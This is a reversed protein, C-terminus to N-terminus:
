WVTEKMFLGSASRRTMREYSVLDLLFCSPTKTQTISECLVALRGSLLPVM